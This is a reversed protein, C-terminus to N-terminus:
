QGEGGPAENPGGPSPPSAPLHVHTQQCLAVGDALMENRRALAAADLRSVALLEALRGATSTHEAEEARHEAELMNRQALHLGYRLAEIKALLTAIDFQADLLESSVDATLWRAIEAERHGDGRSNREDFPDFGTLRRRQIGLRVYQSHYDTEDRRAVGDTVATEAIPAAPTSTVM